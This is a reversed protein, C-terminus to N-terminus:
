ALKTCKAKIKYKKCYEARWTRDSRQIRELELKWAEAYKQNKYYLWILDERWRFDSPLVNETCRQQLPIDKYIDWKKVRNGELGKYAELGQYVSGELEFITEISDKYNFCEFVNKYKTDIKKSKAPNVKYVMGRFADKRNKGSYDGTKPTKSMDLQGKLDYDPYEACVKKTFVGKREGWMTGTSSLTPYFLRVKSKDSFEITIPGRYIVELNNAGVDAFHEMRGYMRMPRDKFLILFNSIPPHHVTHEMYLNTGDDFVTHLTEGLYPNFPKRQSTSLTLGAIVGCLCEIIREAPDTCDDAKKLYTPLGGFM